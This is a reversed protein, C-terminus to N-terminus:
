HVLRCRSPNGGHEDFILIENEGDPKLWPQPLYYRTQTGVAKGDATAVFYRCIHRGNVYLQGKTLGSADFFLPDQGVIKGFKARWWVPGGDLKGKGFATARPPEWRAFAWEGKATIAEVGEFFEVGEALERYATEAAGEGAGHEPLLAVQILNAGGKLQEDQLLHREGGGRELYAVPKNNALLLGRGSFPPISVLIPHKKRHTITWTLRDSLTADGTQLDWLPTRFPLAEVPDGEKMSGRGARLPKVEWLDGWLGKPEGLSAGGAVRGLNEALIVLTTTGKKLNLSVDTKSGPGVGVVGVMDGDLTMHLRDAGQPAAALIKGGASKVKVRYWGYGFASGLTTLDSPGPIAAFRASTGATYEGTGAAEWESIVLRDSKHPAPQVAAVQSVVGDSGIRQCKKEGALALPNGQPDVGAAGLFVADDTLFVHDLHETACLVLTIGEHVQVAPSKGRPVAVPLPSGNISVSGEIGASGFLVLVKGVLGFASLTSYDLQARGSLSTDFLCWTTPASGTDVAVDGGHPLLLRLKSPAKDSGRFIFAVGGQAGTSHIVFPGDTWERPVREGEITRPAAFVPRFDPDLNALLRGFRSAFTCIRRVVQYSPGHLGTETLPAGGDRSVGAFTGPVEPVRGGWFGFNTGAHFPHINFMGGAALVQALRQEIIEPRDAQPAPQGWVPSSAVNCEIVMRPQDPRVAALQRVTALLDGSGSWCDVEGEAAEWLNNANIIPVNIGSERIYRHIEGLYSNAAADDGCTWSSENQVLIIPGPKGQATAQLDRVQGSVATLYRSCAELFPGNAVRLKVGKVGSIWPPLGGFDWQQGIFPGPRLICYMGAAGILQVFRRLDNDGKFDFSGPRPEHRNWFVPTEITNLGALKAAHIRQEWLEHPIRAYQISGSVLWIRRGDLM